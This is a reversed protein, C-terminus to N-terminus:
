STNRISPGLILRGILENMGVLLRGACAVQSKRRIATVPNHSFPSVWPIAYRSCGLEDVALVFSPLLTALCHHWCHGGRSMWVTRQM